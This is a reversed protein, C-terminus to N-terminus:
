DDQFDSCWGDSDAEAKAAAARDAPTGPDARKKARWAAATNLLAAASGGAGAAAPPAAAPAKMLEDVPTPPKPVSPTPPKKEPPNMLEDLLPVVRRATEAVLEDAHDYLLKVQPVPRSPVTHASLYLIHTFPASDPPPPPPPPVQETLPTILPTARLEAYELLELM